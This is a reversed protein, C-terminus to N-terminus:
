IRLFDEFQEVERALDTMNRTTVFQSLPRLVTRARRGFTDGAVTRYAEWNGRYNEFSFALLHELTPNVQDADEVTNIESEVYRLINATLRRLSADSISDKPASLVYFTPVDLLTIIRDKMGPVVVPLEPISLGLPAYLAAAFPSAPGGPNGQFTPAPNLELYNAVRHAVAESVERMAVPNISLADLVEYFKDCPTGNSTTLDRDVDDWPAYRYIRSEGHVKNWSVIKLAVGGFFAAHVQYFQAAQNEDDLDPLTVITHWRRDIHPTIVRTETVEPRIQSVLQYYANFYAGAPRKETTETQEPAYKSLDRARIGYIANYFLIEQPSLDRDQQGGYNGLHEEIISKRRPDAEGAISPNYACSEIPHREEGIPHELFPAALKKVKNIEGTVYHVVHDEQSDHFLARHERELAEIIDLEIQAQHRENVQGKFYGLMDKEYLDQFFNIDREDQLMHYQRVRNYIGESMESDLTIVGGTYPMSRYMFDLSSSDALVYRTTSGKLNDFKLRHQEVDSELQQLNSELQSFFIEFATCLGRVYGIAEQLVHVWVTQDRLDGVKKIYNSALQQMNELVAGPRRRLREGLSRKFSSEWAQPDGTKDPDPDPFFSKPFNAFYTTTRGLETEALQKQLELVKLTQYLFYRAAVPHIFTNSTKERLYTELQQARQNRTAGAHDVRFLSYGIVGAYEETRRVTLDHFRKLDHFVAVYDGPTTSDQLGAVQNQTNQRLVHDSNDRAQQDVYAKLNTVYESWRDTVKNLQDEDWVTCQSQLARAFPDKQAAAQDILQIYEQPADLDKVAFGSERQQALAERRERIQEDYALWQTSLAQNAWRFAVYDRLHEWPYVLRSAGAGAYRNRGDNKIVERLVNDERSNHKKSMPGLSQTYICTAAHDKYAAFSDLGAGSSNTADFLFCFDYPMASVAEVGEGAIKPFEFRLAQYQEDLTNDGKMLFADLERIAAYANVQLNRQEETANIVTYFVDPQVFFGRTIARAKPYKARLYQNLYMAVPLILGSGTGGALSSTITVRLAQEQQDKDIRFLEDIAQHLPDLKGGKLTTDFALRSIARVQAAGETLTKRNLMENVPFWHDRANTNINLYEGVTARTSTQVTKIKPSRRRVEALDNIDTDFAVFAIRESQGISTENVKDHVKEIIQSGTGGLGIILTPAIPM